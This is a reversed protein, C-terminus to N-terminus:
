KQGVKVVFNPMLNRNLADLNESGSMDNLNISSLDIPNEIHNEEPKMQNIEDQMNLEFSAEQNVMDDNPDAPKDVLDGLVDDVPQGQIETAVSARLVDDLNM